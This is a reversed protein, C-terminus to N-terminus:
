GALAPAPEAPPAPKLAEAQQSQEAAEPAAVEGDGGIVKFDGGRWGASFLFLAASTPGLHAFRGALLAVVGPFDQEEQATQLFDHFAGHEEVLELFEAANAIAAEIKRRNRIVGPDALLREVDEETMRSVEAPDLERFAKTIGEWRSEVVRPGLGASFVARTLLGFYERDSRPYEGARQMWPQRKFM